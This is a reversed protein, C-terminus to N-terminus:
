CVLLLANVGPDNHSLVILASTHLLVESISWKSRPGNYSAYRAHIANDFCVFPMPHLPLVRHLHVYTRGMQPYVSEM